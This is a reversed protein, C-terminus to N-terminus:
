TIGASTQNRHVVLSTFVPPLSISRALSLGARFLRVQRPSRSFAAISYAGGPIASGSLAVCPNLAAHRFATHFLGRM